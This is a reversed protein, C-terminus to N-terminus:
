AARAEDGAEERAHASELVVAVWGRATGPPIRAFGRTDLWANLVDARNVGPARLERALPALEGNLRAVERRFGRKDLRIPASDRADPAPTANEHSNARTERADPAAQRERARTQAREARAQAREAKAAQAAAVRRFQAAREATLVTSVVQMLPFLLATFHVWEGALAVPVELAGVLLFDAAFYVLSFGLLLGANAAADSKGKSANWERATLWANVVSQGVLELAVASAWALGPELAFVLRITRASLAVTPLAAVWAAIRAAVTLGLAELGGALEDVTLVSERVQM